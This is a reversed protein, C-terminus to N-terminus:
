FFSNFEHEKNKTTAFMSIRHKKRLFEQGKRVKETYTPSSNCVILAAINRCSSDNEKLYCITADLQKVAHEVDTGKLEIILAKCGESANSGPKKIIKDASTKNVILCGDVDIKYFEERSLNNIIAKQGREEVKIKSDTTLQVCQKNSLISM